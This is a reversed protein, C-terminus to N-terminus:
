RIPGIEVDLGGHNDSLEGPPENLKLYLVGDAIATFRGARGEALIEFRPRGGDPRSTWQAVLLRGLPRGRYYRLTIGDAETELATEGIAGIHCDGSARFAGREGAPLMFGSSQWGRDARIKIRERATLARGASWDIASRSFDFGYDVEDTFADFDRM